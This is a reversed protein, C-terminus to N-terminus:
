RTICITASIVSKAGSKKLMRACESATAGTTLIDDILLIKSNKIITESKENIYFVNRVNKFRISGSMLSQKENDFRKLIANKIMKIGLLKSLERCMLECQNYGRKYFTSKNIPPYVIYDDTINNEKLTNYIFHSFQKYYWMKGAFKYKKLAEKINGEYIFSPYNADIYMKNKQCTPCIKYGYTSYLERGCVLCRDDSIIPLKYYCKRCFCNNKDTIREGCFICKKPYFFDVIYYLM